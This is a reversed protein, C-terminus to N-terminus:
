DLGHPIHDGPQLMLTGQKRRRFLWSINDPDIKIKAQFHLLVAQYTRVQDTKLFAPFCDIHYVTHSLSPRDAQDKGKGDHNQQSIQELLEVVDHVRHDYSTGQPRLSQRRDTRGATDLEQDEAESHPDAHSEGNGDGLPEAGLIM